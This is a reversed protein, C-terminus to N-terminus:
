AILGPYIVENWLAYANGGATGGYDGVVSHRQWDQNSLPWNATVNGHEFPIYGVTNMHEVVKVATDMYPLVTVMKPHTKDFLGGIFVGGYASILCRM